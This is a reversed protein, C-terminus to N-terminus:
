FKANIKKRSGNFKEADKVDKDHQRNYFSMEKEFEKNLEQLSKETPQKREGKRLKNYKTKSGRTIQM